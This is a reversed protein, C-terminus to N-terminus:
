SHEPAPDQLMDDLKLRRPHTTRQRRLRQHNPRHHRPLTPARHTSTTPRRRRRATQPCPRPGQHLVRRGESMQLFNSLQAATWAAPKNSFRHRLKPPHALLAENRVILGRRCADGLAARLIQHINLVTKPALGRGDCHGHDLLAEYLADLDAARVRHLPIDGILPNIRALIEGEYRVFTTPRLSSPRAPLWSGTLYAALTVRGLFVPGRGNRARLLEALLREAERRNKGAPTWNRRQKRTLRDTGEYVVAYYRSGKKVLYGRMIAEKDDPPGRDHL